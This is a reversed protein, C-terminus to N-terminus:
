GLPASTSGAVLYSSGVITTPLMRPTAVFTTGTSGLEYSQPSSSVETPTTVVRRGLVRGGSATGAVAYGLVRNLNTRSVQSENWLTLPGNVSSAEAAAADGWLSLQKS